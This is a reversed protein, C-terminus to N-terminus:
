YLILFYTDTNIGLHSCVRNQFPSDGFPFKKTQRGTEMLPSGMHFCPSYNHGAMPDRVLRWRMVLFIM